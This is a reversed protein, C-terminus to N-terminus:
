RWRLVVRQTSPIKHSKQLVRLMGLRDGVFGDKISRGILLCTSAPLAGSVAAAESRAPMGALLSAKKQVSFGHWATPEQEATMGRVWVRVIGLM